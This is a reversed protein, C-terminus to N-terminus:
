EVRTSEIKSSLWEFVTKAIDPDSAAADFVSKDLRVILGVTDTEAVEDEAASGHWANAENIPNNNIDAQTMDAM